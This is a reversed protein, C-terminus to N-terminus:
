ISCACSVATLAEALFLCRVFFLKDPGSLFAPFLARLTHAWPRVCVCMCARVCGCAVFGPAEAAAHLSSLGIDLAMQGMRLSPLVCPLLAPGRPQTLSQGTCAQM